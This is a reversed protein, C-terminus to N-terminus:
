MEKEIGQFQLAIWRTELALCSVFTSEFVKEKDDDSICTTHVKKFAVTSAVNKKEKEKKAHVVASPVGHLSTPQHHMPMALM